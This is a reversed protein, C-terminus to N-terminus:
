KWKKGFAGFTKFELIECYAILQKEMATKQKNVQSLNRNIIKYM